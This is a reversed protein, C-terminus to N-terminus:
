RQKIKPNVFNTFIFTFCFYISYNIMYAINAGQIGYINLFAHVLFVFSLSFLIESTIFTKIRGQALMPYAYVFSAIKVVDGILQYLFLNRAEYFDKTFLLSISLDRFIYIGFAIVATFPVIVLSLNNVEKRIKLSENIASLRPMFYTSLAITMIALYAESIKWVAQWQGANEWGTEAIMLKRAILLAIPLSLASVFSMFSYNLIGKTYVKTVVGSFSSLSFWEKRWCYIVLVIGAIATNLSVSILAGKLSYAVTMLILITTSIVVSVMGSIIYQRYNQQGNLISALLTNAVSLPLASCALIILWSYETSSFFYLSIYKSLIISVCAIVIYLILSLKISARWWPTCQFYGKEHNEATYRVVGNGVPANVVGSMISIISQLQGIMAIGSPGTYIAIVKGIVFGSLMKLLTFLGSFITVTLFKKM